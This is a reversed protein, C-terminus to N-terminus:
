LEEKTIYDNTDGPTIFPFDLKKMLSHIFIDTEKLIEEFETKITYVM